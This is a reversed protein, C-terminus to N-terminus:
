DTTGHKRRNKQYHKITDIMTWPKCDEPKFGLIRAYQYILREDEAEIELFLPVFSYRGLYKDIELHIEGLSYSTRKKKIESFVKLGLLQLIQRTKNFDSVVIEHENRIKFRKDHVKQKLTLVAKDNERRLRLTKGAKRLRLDSFDFYYAEIMGEFVKKAGLSALKQAIGEKDVGLIKVEIERMMLRKLFTPRALNSSAVEVARL